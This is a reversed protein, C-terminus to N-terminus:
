RLYQLTIRYKTFLFYPSECDSRSTMSKRYRSSLNEFSLNTSNSLSRLQSLSLNLRSLFSSHIVTNLFRIPFLFARYSSEYLPLLTALEIYLFNLPSSIGSVLFEFGM